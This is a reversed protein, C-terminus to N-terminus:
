ERRKILQRLIFMISSKWSRGKKENSIWSARNMLRPTKWSVRIAGAAWCDNDWHWKDGGNGDMLGSMRWLQLAAAPAFTGWIKWRQTQWEQANGQHRHAWRRCQWRCGQGPVSPQTLSYSYPSSTVPRAGGLLMQQCKLWTWVQECTGGQSTSSGRHHLKM